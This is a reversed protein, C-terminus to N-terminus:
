RRQSNSFVRGFQPTRRLCWAAIAVFFRRSVGSDAVLFGEPFVAALAATPQGKMAWGLLPQARGCVGHPLGSRKRLRLSHGKARGM